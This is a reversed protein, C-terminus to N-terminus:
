KSPLTRVFAVGHGLWRRLDSDSECGEPKVYLFGKMPRGTFDMKSAHPHKLLSQYADPGVRIMLSDKLVGVCMNGRLFFALEGFMKKESLGREEALVERVREALGQDYAM